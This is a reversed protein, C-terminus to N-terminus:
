GQKKEVKVWFLNLGHLANVGQADKTGGGKGKGMSSGTFRVEDVDHHVVGAVAVEGTEPLLMELRWTDVTHCGLSHLEGIEVGGTGDASRGATTEHRTNVRPM